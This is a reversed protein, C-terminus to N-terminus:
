KNENKKVGYDRFIRSPGRKPQHLTQILQSQCFNEIKQQFVLSKQSSFPLCQCLLLPPVMQLKSKTRLLSDNRLMLSTSAVAFDM